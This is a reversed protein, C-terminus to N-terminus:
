AVDRQLHIPGSFGPACSGCPALRIPIRPVKEGIDRATVIAHVGPMKLAPSVNLETLRGHPVSSRLIAAHLLGVPECDDVFTGRGTLFRFDETREIEQGIYVNQAKM